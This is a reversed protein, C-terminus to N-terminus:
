LLLYLLTPISFMGMTQLRLQIEPSKKETKIEAGGGREVGRGEEMGRRNSGKWEDKQATGVGPSLDLAPPFTWCTQFLFFFFVFLLYFPDLFEFSCVWFKLIYKGRDICILTVCTEIAPNDKIKFSRLTYLLRNQNHRFNVVNMLIQSWTDHIESGMKFSSLHFTM